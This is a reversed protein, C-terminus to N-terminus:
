SDHRARPTARRLHPARLSQPLGAPCPSGSPFFTTLLLQPVDVRALHDCSSAFHVSCLTFYRHQFPSLRLTSLANQSSVTLVHLDSLSDDDKAALSPATVQIFKCVSAFVCVCHTLSGATAAYRYTPERHVVSFEDFWRMANSSLM